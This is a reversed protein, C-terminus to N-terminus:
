PQYIDFIHGPYIAVPKLANLREDLDTDTWDNDHVHSYTWGVQEALEMRALEIMKSIGEDSPEGSVWVRRVWDAACVEDSRIDDTLMLIVTFPQKNTDDDKTDEDPAFSGMQEELEGLTEEFEKFQWPQDEDVLWIDEAVTNGEMDEISVVRHGEEWESEDSGFLQNPDPYRPTLPAKHLMKALQDLSEIEVEASFYQPVHMCTTIVYKGRAPRAAAATLDAVIDEGGVYKRHDVYKGDRLWATQIGPGEPFVARWLILGDDRRMSYPWADSTIETIKLGLSVVTDTFRVRLKTRHKTPKFKTTDPLLSDSM